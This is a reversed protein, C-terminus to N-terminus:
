RVGARREAVAYVYSQSRIILMGDTAAPTAMLPEGMRNTALLEFKPGAKVVFVDGDESSAYLKGDAAVGSAGPGRFQPWNQARVGPASVLWCCVALLRKM